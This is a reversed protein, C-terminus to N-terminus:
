HVVDLPLVRPIPLPTHAPLSFTPAAGASVGVWQVYTMEGSPITSSLDLTSSGNYWILVPNNGAFGGLACGADNCAMSLISSMSNGSLVSSPIAQSTLDSFNGSQPDLSAVWATQNETGEFGVPVGGAIMWAKGTWVISNVSNTQLNGLSDNASLASDLAGTLHYVAGTSPNYEALFYLGGIM